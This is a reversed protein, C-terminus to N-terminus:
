MTTCGGGGDMGLVRGMKRFQFETGRGWGKAVAMGGETALFKVVRLLECAHFRAADTVPKKRRPCHGWARRHWPM